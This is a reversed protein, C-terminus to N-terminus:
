TLPLLSLMRQLLPTMPLVQLSLLLQLPPLLLQVPLLLLQLPLLLLLLPLRILRQKQPPPQPPPLILPLLLQLPLWIPLLLLPLQLLPPPRQLQRLKNSYCLAMQLVLLLQIVVPLLPLILLKHLLWPPMPLLLPQLLLPLPLLQRLM